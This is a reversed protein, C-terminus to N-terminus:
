TRRNPPVVCFKVGLKHAINKLDNDLEFETVLLSDVCKIQCNEALLTAQYVAKYKVCQYIGRLLDDWNSDRSKVEIVIVKRETSYVVDVRDGSLLTVESDASVYQLKKKVKDPNNKVWIRLERHNKGEGGRGRVLGDKESYKNLFLPNDKYVSGYVIKYLERWRRYAYVEDTAKKVFHSWLASKKNKVDNEIRRQEEPFRKSLYSRVGVGPENSNKGVVLVNLLPASSDHMLIRDQMAGAVKGIETSFITRFNCQKELRRKVENYTLTEQNEAAFILWRTLPETADRSRLNAYTSEIM